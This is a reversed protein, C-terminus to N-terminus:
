AEIREHPPTRTGGAAPLIQAKPNAAAQLADLQPKAYEEQSTQATISVLFPSAHQLRASSGAERRTGAEIGVNQAHWQGHGM